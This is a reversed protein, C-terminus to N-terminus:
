RGRLKMRRAPAAAVEKFEAGSPTMVAVIQPKDAVAASLEIVDFREAIEDSNFFKEVYRNPVRIGLFDAEDVSLIDAHGQFMSFLPGAFNDSGTPLRASVNILAAGHRLRLLIAGDSVPSGKITKAATLLLITGLEHAITDSYLFSNIGNNRGVDIQVAAGPQRTGSTAAPDRLWPAKVCFAALTTTSTSLVAKGFGVSISARGQTM